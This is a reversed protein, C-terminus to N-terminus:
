RRSRRSRRSVYIDGPDNVVPDSPGQNIHKRGFYLRTGDASLTARTEAGDPTNINTNPIRKPASWPSATNPRTAYYIDQDASSAGSRNSSFVIELGDRRVNPMVDAANSSLEVVKAGPGFSGDARQRSMYIDHSQSDDYGNSSFFLFTGERTEIVSPSYESGKTNPGPKADKYSGLHMPTGWGRAPNERTLFIDGHPPSGAPPPAVAICDACNESNNRSSVFMLRKGPMPLPCYDAAPSNTRPGLNEINGWSQLAFNWTARWNDLSGQGGPRTSMFYLHSGDPAEIPCGEAAATNVGPAPAPDHWAGYQAASADFAIFAALALTLALRKQKRNMAIEKIQLGSIGTRDPERHRHWPDQPRQQAQSPFSPFLKPGCSGRSKTHKSLLPEPVPHM